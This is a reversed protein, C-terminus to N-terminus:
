QYDIEDQREEEFIEEVSGPDEEFDGSSQDDKEEVWLEEDNAESEVNNSKIDSTNALFCAVDEPYVEESWMYNFEDDWGHNEPLDTVM